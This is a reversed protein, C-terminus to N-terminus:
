RNNLCLSNDQLLHLRETRRSIKFQNLQWCRDPADQCDWDAAVKIKRM